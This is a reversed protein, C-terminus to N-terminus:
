YPDYTITQETTYARGFLKERRGNRFVVQKGNVALKSDWAIVKGRSDLFRREVFRGAVVAEWIWQLEEQWTTGPIITGGRAFGYFERWSHGVTLDLDTAM